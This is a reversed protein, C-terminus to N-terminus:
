SGGSASKGLKLTKFNPKRMLVEDQQSEPLDPRVENLTQRLARGARRCSARDPWESHISRLYPRKSGPFTFHAHVVHWQDSTLAATGKRTQVESIM